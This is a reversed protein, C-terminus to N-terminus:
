GRSGLNGYRHYSHSICQENFYNLLELRGNTLPPQRCIFVSDKAAAEYTSDSVKEVDAYIIRKYGNLDKPFEEESQIKLDRLQKLDSRHEALFDHLKNGSEFNLDFSVGSVEAAFIRQLAPLSSDNERIRIVIRQVPLYRFINDEGRVQFFDHEKSFEEEFAQTYSRLAIRLRKADVDSLDSFEEVMSQLSDPVEVTDSTTLNDPERIKMFQTIYNYHGVKRGAGIASKGMGGFPQRLVIAGTTGRNIYLNGALISERWIGVEREDLSEIGSTLGYGTANVLDIAHQLDDACMVSLVPGFLETIHCFSGPQVGWKISPKLLYPNHDIYSPELAWSEGEGLSELAQQLAGSAPNVLKSIKNKLNWPTGVPLSSAADVLSEKFDPDEYVEKELILLSTASCKQGSNSFASHCINRIAQERDAMATVITADKGGTEATLYLDPRTKLMHYATEEGGTLIAFDIKPNPILHKGALSGPCPLLQLTKKSIGAAWFCKCFEYACAMAASAPKLIVTNGAALAAAAGGLPIAIPFNWPPVVLGVGIGSTELHPQNEWYEASQAYFELFDVAESVEVDTETFVKGLEAAAVGILNDRNRRVEVAVERLQDAREKASLKRWGDHDNAACEVAAQIDDKDAIACNAIPVELPLQSHDFQTTTSKGESVEQGNVVIPLLPVPSTESFKWKQIIQKAWKRNPELVFDTDAESQFSGDTTMKGTSRDHTETLRNQQRKPDNKLDKLTTFSDVFLDKQKQWSESEVKLGFSHRIFNQEGTNEDLRRVLYAIANTFQAKAAAPAYLMVPMTDEHIAQRASESMGELMEITLFELTGYHKALTVAHAIEFLNHSAVGLNVAVANEPRLAFDAMQKYNADTDLKEEYTVIKWGKSDAETFEMEMNAGKVLRIKIPAGGDKVRAIAWATLQKQYHISDPLYAQIAIGAHLKKFEPRSLTQRFVEITIPLDRYEEMDLNIYKAQSTDRTANEQAAHFLKSLRDVLVEVTGEFNLTNIQSYLTSLKISLYEIDPNKLAELYKHMRSEAEEEGLVIEGILNSICHVGQKKRKQLHKGFPTPEGKLVVTRSDNRIYNVFAPVSLDPAIAAFHQFFSLLAKESPSFFNAIGHKKLLFIIQNVVRKNNKSRFCQDMLEILLAKDEPHKLMRNMRNHFRHDFPSVLESARAQWRRALEVSEQILAEQEM